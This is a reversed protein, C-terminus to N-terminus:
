KEGVLSNSYEATLHPALAHFHGWKKLLYQYGIDHGFVMEESKVGETKGNKKSLQKQQWAM